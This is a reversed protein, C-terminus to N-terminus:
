EENDDRIGGQLQPNFAGMSFANQNNQINKKHQEELRAIEEQVNQVIDLTGLLTEDSVTGKLASVVQANELLNTPLSHTFEIMVSEYDYQPKGAVRWVHFLRKLRLRLGKEFNSEKEKVLLNLGILKYAMAVGSANGAFNEDTMNPVFSYTHIDEKITDRLVQVDSETLNKTLWKADTNTDPLNILRESRLRKMWGEPLKGGTIVLISDVLQEKDNIRDSMLTNYADILSIQQEYDGQLEDNNIYEILPVSGFSHSSNGIYKYDGVLSNTEYEIIEDDTYVFVKFKKKSIRYYYIGALVTEELDMDRILLANTSALDKIKIKVEGEPANPDAYLLEYARGHISMQKGMKFDHTAVHRKKNWDDIHNITEEGMNKAVDILTSEDQGSDVETVDTSDMYTYKPPNGIFYGNLITTIYKAHNSMTKNNPAGVGRRKRNLIPHNGEYYNKLKELRKIDNLHADIASKVVFVDVGLLEALQKM